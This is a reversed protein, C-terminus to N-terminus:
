ANGTDVKPLSFPIIPTEPDDDGDEISYALVNEVHFQVVEFEPTMYEKM